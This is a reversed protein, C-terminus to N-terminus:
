AALLRTLVQFQGLQWHEGNWLIRTRITPTERAFRIRIEVDMVGETDRQWWDPLSQMTVSVSEVAQWDGLVSLSRIYRHWFDAPSRSLREPTLRAVLTDAEWSEVTSLTTELIWERGSDRLQHHWYLNASYTLLGAACLATLILLSWTLRHLM